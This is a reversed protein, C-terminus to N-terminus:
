GDRPEHLTELNKVTSHRDDPLLLSSERQRAVNDIDVRVRNLFYLAAKAAKLERREDDSLDGLSGQVSHREGAPDLIDEASGGARLQDDLRRALDVPSLRIKDNRTTM